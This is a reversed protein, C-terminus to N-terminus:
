KNVNPNRSILRRRFTAAGWCMAPSVTTLSAPEFGALLSMKKKILLGWIKLGTSLILEQKFFLRFFLSLMRAKRKISYSRYRGNRAGPVHFSLQWLRKSDAILPIVFCKMSLTRCKYASVTNTQLMIICNFVGRVFGLFYFIIIPLLLTLNRVEQSSLLNLASINENTEIVLNNWLM